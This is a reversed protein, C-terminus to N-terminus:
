GWLSKWFSPKCGKMINSNEIKKKKKQDQWIEHCSKKRKCDTLRRMHRGPPITPDFGVGAMNETRCQRQMQSGHTWRQGEQWLLQLRPISFLAGGMNQFDCFGQFVFQVFSVTQFHSSLTGSIPALNLCTFFAAWEQQEFCCINETAEPTAKKRSQYIKLVVVCGPLADFWLGYITALWLSSLLSLCAEMLLFYFAQKLKFQKLWVNATTCLRELWLFSGM